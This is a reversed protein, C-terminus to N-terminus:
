EFPAALVYGSALLADVGPSVYATCKISKVKRAKKRLPTVLANFVEKIEDGAPEVQKTEPHIIKGHYTLLACPVVRKGDREYLDWFYLELCPGGVDTHFYWLEVGERIFPRFKFPYRSIDGHTLVFRFERRAVAAEIDVTSNCILFVPTTVDKYNCVTFGATFAANLFDLMEQKTWFYNFEAM